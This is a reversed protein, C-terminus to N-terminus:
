FVTLFVLFRFIFELFRPKKQLGSTQSKSDPLTDTDPLGFTRYAYGPRQCNYSVQLHRIFYMKVQVIIIKPQDSHLAQNSQQYLQFRLDIPTYLLFHNSLRSSTTLLSVSVSACTGTDTKMM